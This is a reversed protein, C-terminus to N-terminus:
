MTGITCEEKRNNRQYYGAWKPSIPSTLLRKLLWDVKADVTAKRFDQRWAIERAYALANDKSWKHYTGRHAKRLVSWFSEAFNTTAGNESFYYDHNVRLMDFATRLGDWAHAGDAIIVSGLAIVRRLDKVSEAESAGAFVATRGDRERAVVFIRRHELNRTYIRRISGDRLSNELTRHGGFMAGDIEVMGSLRLGDGEAAIVERFKHMLIWSTKQTVGITTGMQISSIGKANACFIFVALLIQVPTLKTSAVASGSFISYQNRCAPELCRFLGRSEIFGSRASGCRPCSIGEGFKLSIMRDFANADGGSFIDKLTMPRVISAKGITADYGVFNAGNTVKVRKNKSVIELGKARPESADIGM